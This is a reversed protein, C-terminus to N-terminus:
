VAEAMPVNKIRSGKSKAEMAVEIGSKMFRMATWVNDLDVETETSYGYKGLCDWNNDRILDSAIKSAPKPYAVWISVGNAMAPVVDSLINALQTKNVAFVVAFEIRRSRLLPTVSKAFSIKSFQKELSSPLGQVLINKENQYQLKELVTPLAM